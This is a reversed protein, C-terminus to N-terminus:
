NRNANTEREVQNHILEDVDKPLTQQRANRHLTFLLKVDQFGMPAIGNGPVLFTKGTIQKNKHKIQM